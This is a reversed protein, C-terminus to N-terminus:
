REHRMHVRSLILETERHDRIGFHATKRQNTFLALGEEVEYREHGFCMIYNFLIEWAFGVLSPNNEDLRPKIRAGWRMRVGLEDEFIVPWDGLAETRSGPEYLFEPDHEDWSGAFTWFKEECLLGILQPYRKEVEKLVTPLHVVVLERIFGPDGDESSPRVNFYGLSEWDPLLSLRRAVGAGVRSGGDDVITKKDHFIGTQYQDQHPFTGRIATAKTVANAMQTSIMQVENDWGKGEADYKSQVGEWQPVLRLGTFECLKLHADQDPVGTVVIASLNDEAMMGKIEKVAVDYSIVPIKVGEAVETAIWERARVEDINQRVSAQALLEIDDDDRLSGIRDDAGEESLGLGEMVRNKAIERM